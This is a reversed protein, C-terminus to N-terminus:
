MVRLPTYRVLIQMPVLIARVINLVSVYSGM